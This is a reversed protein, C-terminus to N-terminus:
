LNDLIFAADDGSWYTERKGEATKGVRQRVGPYNAQVYALEYGSGYCWLDARFTPDLLADVIDVNPESQGVYWDLYETDNSCFLRADAPAAFAVAIAIAALTRKM